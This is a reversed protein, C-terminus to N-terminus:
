NEKVMWNDFTKKFGLRSLIDYMYDHGPSVKTVVRNKNFLKQLLGKTIWRRRWEPTISVHLEDGKRYVAGICRGDRVITQIIWEKMVEQYVEFSIPQGWDTAAYGIKLGLERDDVLETTM